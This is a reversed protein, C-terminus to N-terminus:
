VNEGTPKPSAVDETVMDILDEEEQLIAGENENYDESVSPISPLSKNRRADLAENEAILEHRRQM